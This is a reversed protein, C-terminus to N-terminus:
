KFMQNFYDNSGKMYDELPNVGSRVNNSNPTRKTPLAQAIHSKNVSLAAELSKIEKLLKKFIQIVDESDTLLKQPDEVMVDLVKGFVDLDRNDKWPVGLDEFKLGPGVTDKSSSVCSPDQFDMGPLKNYTESSQSPQVFEELEGLSVGLIDLSEKYMDSITHDEARGQRNYADSKSATQKLPTHMTTDNQRYNEQYRSSAEHKSIIVDSRLKEVSLIMEKIMRRIVIMATQTTDEIKKMKKVTTEYKKSEKLVESKAIKSGEANENRLKELESTNTELKSELSSIKLEKREIDQKYKKLIEKHKSLEITKNDNDKIEKIESELKEKTEKLMTEKRLLDSKTAKLKSQLNKVEQHLKSESDKAEDFQSKLERIMTEKRAIERNLKAIKDIDEKKSEFKTVLEEAEKETKEQTAKLSSVLDRKRM